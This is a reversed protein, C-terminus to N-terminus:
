ISFFKVGELSLSPFSSFQAKYRGVNYEKQNKSLCSDFVGVEFHRYGINKYHLMTNFLLFNNAKHKKALELSCGGYYLANQKDVHIMVAAIPEDNFYCFFLHVNDGIANLMSEFHSLPHPNLGTRAWSSNHIKWYLEIDELNGPKFVLDKKRCTQNIIARCDEDMQAKIEPETLQLDIINTLRPPDTLHHYCGYSWLINFDKSGKVCFGPAINSQRIELSSVNNEKALEDIYGFILKLHKKRGKEKFEGDLAFGSYGTKFTKITKKIIKGSIDKSLYIPFIGVLKNSDNFMGFCFSENGEEIAWNIYKSRQYLWGDPSKEVFDDWIDPDIEEYNKFHM